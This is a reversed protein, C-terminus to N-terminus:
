EELVTALDMLDDLTDAIDDTDPDDERLEALAARGKIKIRTAFLAVTKPEIEVDDQENETARLDHELLRSLHAGLRESRPVTDAWAYWVDPDIDVTAPTRSPDRAPVRLGADDVILQRLREYVLTDDDFSHKWAHWDAARVHLNYTVADAPQREYTVPDTDPPSAM